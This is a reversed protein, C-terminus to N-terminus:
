DTSSTAELDIPNSLKSYLAIQVKFWEIQNESMWKEFM